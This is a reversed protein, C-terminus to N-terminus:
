TLLISGGLLIPQFDPLIAARNLASDSHKRVAVHVATMVHVTTMVHVATMLHVPTMVQVATMVNVLAEMLTDLKSVKMEKRIGLGAVLFVILFIFVLDATMVNVATM